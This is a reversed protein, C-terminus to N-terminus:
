IKSKRVSKQYETEKAITHNERDIVALMDSIGVGEGRAKMEKECIAMKRRVIFFLERINLLAKSCNHQAKGGMIKCESVLKDMSRLLIGCTSRILYPGQSEASMIIPILKEFAECGISLSKVASHNKSKTIVMQSMIGFLNESYMSIFSSFDQRLDIYQRRTDIILKARISLDIRKQISSYRNKIQAILLFLTRNSSEQTTQNMLENAAHVCDISLLNHNFDSLARAAEYFGTRTQHNLLFRVLGVISSSKRPYCIIIEIQEIFQNIFPLFERDNKMDYLAENMLTKFCQQCKMFANNGISESSEENALQSFITSIKWLRSLLDRYRKNCENEYDVISQRLSSSTRIAQLSLEEINKTLDEVKLDGEIEKYLDKCPDCTQSLIRLNEPVHSEITFALESLTSAKALHIQNIFRQIDVQTSSGPYLPGNFDLYDVIQNLAIIRQDDSPFQTLQQKIEITPNITQFVAEILSICRLCSSSALFSGNTVYSKEVDTLVENYSIILGEHTTIASMGLLTSIYVKLKSLSSCSEALSNQFEKLQDLIIKSRKIYIRIDEHDKKPIPMKLPEILLVPPNKIFYSEIDKISNNMNDSSYLDLMKIYDKHIDKNNIRNILKSVEKQLNTITSFENFFQQNMTSFFLINGFDKITLLLKQKILDILNKCQEKENIWYAEFLLLTISRVGLLAIPQLCLLPTENIKDVLMSMVEDQKAILKSSAEQFSNRIQSTKEQCQQFVETLKQHESSKSKLQQLRGLTSSEEVLSAGIDSELKRCVDFSSYLTQAIKDDVVRLISCAINMHTYFSKNPPKKSTVNTIFLSRADVVQELLRLVVRCSANILEARPIESFLCYSLVFSPIQITDINAEKAVSTDILNSNRSSLPRTRLNILSIIEIVNPSLIRVSSSGKEEEYEFKFSEPSDQIISKMESINYQCWLTTSGQKFVRLSAYNLSFTSKDRTQKKGILGHYWEGNMVISSFHQLTMIFSCMDEKFNPKEKIKRYIDISNIASKKLQSPDDFISTPIFQKIENEIQSKAMSSKFYGNSLIFFSATLFYMDKESLFMKGNIFDDKFINLLVEPPHIVINITSAFPVQITLPLKQDLEKGKAMIQYFRPDLLKNRICVYQIIDELIYSNKIKINNPKNNTDIVSIDHTDPVILIPQNQCELDYIKTEPSICEYIYQEKSIFLQSSPHVVNPHISIAYELIASCEKEKSVIFQVEPLSTKPFLLRLTVEELM